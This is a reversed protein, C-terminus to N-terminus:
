AFSRGKERVANSVINTILQKKELLMSEFDKADMTNVTFNVNVVKASDTDARVGLDGTSTRTLPLIAEPGAEGMVGMGATTPFATTNSVIGGRAFKLMSNPIGLQSYDVSYMGNGEMNVANPYKKIVEQALVGRKMDNGFVNSYPAKYQFDYINMGNYSGFYELNKKMRADSFFSLITSGWSLATQWWSGGGGGGGGSFGTVRGLWSIADGALDIIRSLGGGVNKGIWNIADGMINMINGGLGQFLSGISTGFSSFIEWGKMGWDSFVALTSSVFGGISTPATGGDSFLGTIVGGIGNLDGTASNRFGLFDRIMSAFLQKVLEQPKIGFVLDFVEYYTNLEKQSLGSWEVIKDNLLGYLNSYERTVDDIYSRELGRKIENYQEQNKILGAAQAKDLDMLAKQYKQTSSLDEERFKKAMDDWNKAYKQRSAEILINKTEEDAILGANFEKTIREVENLYAQEATLQSLRYEDAKTKNANQYTEKLAALYQEYQTQDKFSGALYEQEAKRTQEYFLALGTLNKTRSSEIFRDYEEQKRKLDDIAKKRDETKKKEDEVQASLARVEAEIDKRRQASIDAIAKGTKKAEAALAKNVNIQINKEKSDLKALEIEQKLEDIFETYADKALKTALGTEQMKKKMEDTPGIAAKTQKGVEGTANALGKQTATTKKAEEDYEKTAKSFADFPNDLKLLAKVAAGFGVLTKILGGMAAEAADVVPKLIPGIVDAFAIVAATAVAIGAAIPAFYAALGLLVVGVVKIIPILNEANKTIHQIAGVLVESLGSTALFERGLNQFENAMQTVAQGVTVSTSAMEKQLNPLADILAQALVTSKLFGESGLKKLEERAIGTTESLIKLFKPNAEAMARFEDGQLKGSQMAQSFQLIASAAEGGSTGSIALSLNFAEVVKTLEKGSVGVVDQNQALRSYLNITEALPARTKQSVDFLEQYKENLDAQSTTVLKLRNDLTQIQNIFDLTQGGALATVFGIAAQRLGDMSRSVSKSTSDIGQLNRQIDSFGARTEDILRVVISADM